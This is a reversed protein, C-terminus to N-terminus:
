IHILSLWQQVARDLAEPSRWGFWWGIVPGAEGITVQGSTAEGLVELHSRWRVCWSLFAAPPRGRCAAVKRRLEGTWTWWQRPICREAPTGILKSCNSRGKSLYKSLYRGPDTRAAEARCGYNHGRDRGFASFYAARHVRHWDAVSVAWPQFPGASTPACYHWHTVPQGASTTRKPHLEAVVVVLPDLGRAILMRRAFFLWRSQFTALQDRTCTEAAADPLTVTGFVLSGMRERLLACADRISRRGAATLGKFGHTTSDQASKVYCDLGDPLSARLEQLFPRLGRIGGSQRVAADVTRRMPDSPAIPIPPLCGLSVLRDVAALREARPGASMRELQSEIVLLRLRDAPDVLAVAAAAPPPLDNCAREEATMRLVRRNDRGCVEGHERRGPQHPAVAVASMFLSPSLKGRWRPGDGAVRESPLRVTPPWDEVGSPGQSICDGPSEIVLSDSFGQGTTSELRDCIPRTKLIQTLCLYAPIRNENGYRGEKVSPHPCDPLFLAAAESLLRNREQWRCVLANEPAGHADPASASTTGRLKVPWPSPDEATPIPGAM